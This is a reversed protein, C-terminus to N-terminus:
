ATTAAAQARPNNAFFTFMVHDYDIRRGEWQTDGTKASIDRGLHTNDETVAQANGTPTPPAQLISRGDPTTFVLDGNLAHTCSFGGEHVLRHHFSCLTVLNTLSTHGGEAWHQIHHAHVFRDHSCGPFRCGTDRAQLARRIATPM